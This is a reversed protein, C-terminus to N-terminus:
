EKGPKDLFDRKGSGEFQAAEVQDLLTVLPTGSRSISIRGCGVNM